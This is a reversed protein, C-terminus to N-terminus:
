SRIFDNEASRFNDICSQCNDVLAEYYEAAHDDNVKTVENLETRREDALEMIQRLAWEDLRDLEAQNMPNDISGIDDVSEFNRENGRSEEAEEMLEQLRQMEMTLDNWAGREHRNLDLDRFSRTNELEFILQKIARSTNEFMCHSMNPYNDREFSM